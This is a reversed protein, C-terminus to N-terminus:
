KKLKLYGLFKHVQLTQNLFIIQFDKIIDKWFMSFEKTDNNIVPDRPIIVNVLFSEQQVPLRVM